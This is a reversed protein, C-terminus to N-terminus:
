TYPNYSDDLLQKASKGDISEWNKLRAAVAQVIFSTASLGQNYAAAKVMDYLNEDISISIVRKEKKTINLM